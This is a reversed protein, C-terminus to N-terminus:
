VLEGGNVIEMYRGAIELPTMAGETM